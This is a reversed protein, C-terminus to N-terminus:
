VRMQLNRLLICPLPAENTPLVKFNVNAIFSDQKALSHHM